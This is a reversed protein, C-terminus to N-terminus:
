VNCARLLAIDRRVVQQGAIERGDVEIEKPWYAGRQSTGPTCRTCGETSSGSWDGRRSTRVAVLAWTAAVPM